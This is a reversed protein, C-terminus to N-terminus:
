YRNYAPSNEFIYGTPKPYAVDKNLPINGDNFLPSHTEYFDLNYGRVVPDELYSKVFMQKQRFLETINVDYDDNINDGILNRENNSCIPFKVDNIGTSNKFMYGNASQKMSDLSNNGCLKNKKNTQIQTLIPTAEQKALYNGYEVFNGENPFEINTSDETSVSQEVSNYVPFVKVLHTKSEESLPLIPVKPLTANQTLQTPSSAQKIISSANTSIQNIANSTNTIINNAGTDIANSTNKIVSDTNTMVTTILNNINLTANSMGNSVDSVVSGSSVSGNFNEIKDSDSSDASSQNTQNTQNTQNSPSLMVKQMPQGSNQTDVFVNYDDSDCKKQVKVTVHPSPINIPPINVAVNSLKNSIVSNINVVIILVIIIIIIFFIALDTNTM